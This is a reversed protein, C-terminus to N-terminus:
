LWPYGYLESVPDYERTTAGPCAAVIKVRHFGRPPNRRVASIGSPTGKAPVVANFEETVFFIDMDRM